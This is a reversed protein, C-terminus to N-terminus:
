SVGIGVHATGSGMLEGALRFQPLINQRMLWGIAKKLSNANSLISSLDSSPGFQDGTRDLDPCFLLVHKVTQNPHGCSCGPAVNPVKQRALFANFGIKETRLQTAVSSEAKRLNDHLRLDRLTDDRTHAAVRKDPPVKNRQKAWDSAWQNHIAKRIQTCPNTGQGQSGMRGFKQYWTAKQAGPTTPQRRRRGRGGRLQARIRECATTILEVSPASSKRLQYQSHSSSLLYSVVM